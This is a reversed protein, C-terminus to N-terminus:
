DPLSKFVSFLEIKKMALEVEQSQEKLIKEMDGSFPFDNLYMHVTVVVSAAILLYANVSWLLFVIGVVMLRWGVRFYSNCQIALAATAVKTEEMRLDDLKFKAQEEESLDEVQTHFHLYFYTLITMFLNVLSGMIIVVPLITRLSAPTMEKWSYKLAPVIIAGLSLLLVQVFFALIMLSSRFNQVTTVKNKYDYFIYKAWSIRSFDVHSSLSSHLKTRTMYSYYMHYGTFCAISICVAIYDSSELDKQNTFSLTRGNLSIFSM